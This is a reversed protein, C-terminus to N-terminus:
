GANLRELDELSSVGTVELEKGTKPQIKRVLGQLTKGPGVEIFQVAGDAVMQKVSDEWLVPSTLQEILKRKLEAPDTTPQGDVNTYIPVIPEQFSKYQLVAELEQRAPEMLASHFAGGVKLEIVRRAGAMVASKMAYGLADKAGSIVIQNPANFNAPQVVGRLSAHECVEVVKDRSLFLIAAMSGAEQQSAAEMAEARVKVVELADEFSLAGAAVLATYEGLSHGAVMHYLLEDPLLYFYTLSAVFVAPQTISTQTLKELPGEFTAEALDFKLIRRATQYLRRVSAYADYADKAMGVYQSGQGPFVLATSQVV